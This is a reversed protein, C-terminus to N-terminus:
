YGYLQRVENGIDALSGGRQQQAPAQRPKFNKSNLVWTSWASQWCEWESGVKTHHATFREVQEALEDESWSDVIRRSKTNKGFEKPWWNAPIAHKHKKNNTTRLPKPSVTDPTQTTNTLPSMKDPTVPQRLTIRYTSSTGMRQNTDLIGRTELSRIARQVTRGSTSCRAAMTNVSPWCNGGGDSAFDCLCLLVMKETAPIDLDWAASM